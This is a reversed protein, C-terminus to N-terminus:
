PASRTYQTMWNVEWTAGGDASFAQESQATDATNGWISFRVLVYRGNNEEYDYFDGRANRFEGVGPNGLVGVGSLRM